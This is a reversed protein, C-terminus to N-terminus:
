CLSASGLHLPDRESFLLILIDQLSVMGGVLVYSRTYGSKGGILIGKEECSYTDMIGERWLQLYLRIQSMWPVKTKLATLIWSIKGRCSWTYDSKGIALISEGCLQLYGPNRKNVATPIAQSRLLWSIKGWLQLYGPYKEKVATPVALSGVAM